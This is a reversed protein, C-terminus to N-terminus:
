QQSGVNDMQWSSALWGYCVVSLAREGHSASNGTLLCCRRKRSHFCRCSHHLMQGCNAKHCKLGHPHIQKNQTFCWWVGARLLAQVRRESMGPKTQQNAALSSGAAAEGAPNSHILITPAPVFIRLLSFSNSVPPSVLCVTADAPLKIPHTHCLNLKSWSKCDSMWKFLLKWKLFTRKQSVPTSGDQTPSMMQLWM